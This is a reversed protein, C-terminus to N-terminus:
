DDEFRGREAGAHCAMCDVLSKAGVREMLRKMGRRNHNRVFWRLKTIRIPTGNRRRGAHATLYAEIRTRTAKDLSADEGFHDGLSNMIRTWSGAPLLRAPFAMHCAGCEKRTLVDAGPSKPGTAATAPLVALGFLAALLLKKM